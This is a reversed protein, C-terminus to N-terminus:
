LLVGAHRRGGPRGSREAAAQVGRPDDEQSQEGRQEAAGAIYDVAVPLANGVKEGDADKLQKKVIVSKAALSYKGTSTTFAFKVEKGKAIEDPETVDFMISVGSDGAGAGPRKTVDVDITATVSVASSPHQNAPNDDSDIDGDNDSDLDEDAIQFTFTWKLPVTRSAVGAGLDDTTVKYEVNVSRYPNEDNLYLVYITTRAM